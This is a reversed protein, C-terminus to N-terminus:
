PGVGAIMIGSVFTACLSLWFGPLSLAIARLRAGKMFVALAVVIAAHLATVGWLVAGRWAPPEVYEPMRPGDYRLLIGVALVAFPVVYTVVLLRLRQRFQASQLPRGILLSGIAGALVALSIPWGYLAVEVWLILSALLIEKLPMADM